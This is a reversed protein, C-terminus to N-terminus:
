IPLTRLRSQALGVYYTALGSDIAHRYEARAEANEGLGRHAEARHYHGTPFDVPQPPAALYEDWYGLSRDFEGLALTARGLNGLVGSRTNRDQAFGALRADVDDIARLASERRGQMADIRTLAADCWLTVKAEGAVLKKAEALAARAEDPKGQEALISARAFRFIGQTFKEARPTPFPDIRSARDVAVLAEDFRGWSRLIEFRILELHRTPRVAAAAKDVSALAEALKGRKRSSEALDGLTDAVQKPDGLREALEAVQRKHRESDDLRGLDGYSAGAQRHALLQRHPDSTMSAAEEARLASDELRGAHFLDNALALTLQVRGDDPAEPLSELGEELAQCAGSYDRTAALQRARM